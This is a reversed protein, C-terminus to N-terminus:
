IKDRKTAPNQQIDVAVRAGPRFLPVRTLFDTLLFLVPLFKTVPFYNEFHLKTLSFYFDGGIQQYNRSGM